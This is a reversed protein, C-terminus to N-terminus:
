IATIPIEKKKLLISAGDAAFNLCEKFLSIGHKKILIKVTEELSPGCGYIIIKQKEQVLNEFKSLLNELNWISKKNKLIQSLYNRAKM